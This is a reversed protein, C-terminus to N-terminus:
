SKMIYLENFFNRFPNILENDYLFKAGVNEENQKIIISAKVPYVRTSYRNILYAITLAVILSLVVLYWFRLARAAVRKFNIQFGSAQDSAGAGAFESINTQTNL